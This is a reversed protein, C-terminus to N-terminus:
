GGGRGGVAGERGGGTRPRRGNFRPVAVLVAVWALVAGASWPDGGGRLLSTGPVFVEAQQMLNRVVVAHTTLGRVDVAVVRLGNMRKGLTQGNWLLESAVYYPTRIAFFLLAGVAVTINGGATLALLALAAVM